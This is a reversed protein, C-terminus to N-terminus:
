RNENRTPAEYPDEYSDEYPDLLAEAAPATPVAPLAPLSELSWRLTYDATTIDGPRGSEKRGIQLIVSRGPAIGVADLQERGGAGASDAMAQILGNTDGPEAASETAPEGPQEAAAEVTDTASGSAPVVGKGSAGDAVVRVAIDAGPSPIVQVSLMLAEDGARVRYCDIDSPTVIGRWSGQWVDPETRLAMATAGSDNPETEQDETLLRTTVQLQYPDLPNSRKAELRLLYPAADEEAAHEEPLQNAGSVAGTAAGSADDTTAPPTPPERVPVVNRVAVDGGVDGKRMLLRQGEGDLLTLTFAVGPMGRVDVDLSQREAFGVVPVQWMDVDGRWSVHGERAEGVLVPNATSADDNGEREREPTPAEQLNVALEYDPSPGERPPGKRRRRKSVFERVRLFYTGRVVPYEVIGEVVQAPGRDSRALIDLQGAKEEALDLMLDVGDIGSVTASLVGSKSVALRYVDVDEQGDLSGRVGGAVGFDASGSIDTAEAADANPEIEAMLEVGDTASEVVVVAGADGDRVLQRAGRQGKSDCGSTWVGSALAAPISWAAVILLARARKTWPSMM